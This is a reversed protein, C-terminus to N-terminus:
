CRQMKWISSCKSLLVLVHLVVFRKVFLYGSIIGKRFCCMIDSPSHHLAMTLTYYEYVFYRVCWMHQPLYNQFLLLTSKCFETYAQTCKFMAMCTAIFLFRRNWDLWSNVFDHTFPVWTTWIADCRIAIMIRDFLHQRKAWFMKNQNRNNLKFISGPSKNVFLVSRVIRSCFVVLLTHANLTTSINVVRYANKNSIGFYCIIIVFQTRQACANPTRVSEVRNWLNIPFEHREM